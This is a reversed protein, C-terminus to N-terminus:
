KLFLGFHGKLPSTVFHVIDLIEKRLYIQYTFDASIKAFYYINNKFQMNKEKERIKKTSDNRMNDHLLNSM